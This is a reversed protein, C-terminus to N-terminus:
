QGGGLALLELGDREDFPAAAVPSPGAAVASWADKAVCPTNKTSEELLAALAETPRSAHSPFLPERTTM